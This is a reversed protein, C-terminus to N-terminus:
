TKKKLSSVEPREGGGERIKPGGLGNGAQNFGWTYKPEGERGAERLTLNGEGGRAKELKESFNGGWANGRKKRRFCSGGRPEGRLSLCVRGVYSQYGREKQFSM